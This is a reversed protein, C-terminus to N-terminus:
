STLRVGLFAVIGNVKFFNPYSAYIFKVDMELDKLMNKEQKELEGHIVNVAKILERIKVKQKETLKYGLNRLIDKLFSSIIQYFFNQIELNFLDTAKAILNDMDKKEINDNELDQSYTKYKFFVDFPGDFFNILQYFM